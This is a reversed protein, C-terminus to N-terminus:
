NRYCDAIRSVDVPPTWNFGATLKQHERDYLSVVIDLRAILGDKQSGKQEIPNLVLSYLDNVFHKDLELHKAADNVKQGCYIQRSNNTTEM